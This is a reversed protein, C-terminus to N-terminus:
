QITHQKEYEEVGSIPYLITFGMKVCKPGGGNSRWKSLKDRSIKRCWRNILEEESLFVESM